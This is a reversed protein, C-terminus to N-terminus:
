FFRRLEYAHSQDEPRIDGSLRTILFKSPHLILDRRESELGAAGLANLAEGFKRGNGSEFVIVVRFTETRLKDPPPDHVVNEGPRIRDEAPASTALGLAGLVTLFSRRLM